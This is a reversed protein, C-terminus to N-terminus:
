IWRFLINWSNKKGNFFGVLTKSYHVCVINWFFNRFNWFGDHHKKWSVFWELFGFAMPTVHKRECWRKKWRFFDVWFDFVWSKPTEKFPSVGLRWGLIIMKTPFGWPNTPSVWWKLFGGSPRGQSPGLCHSISAAKSDRSPHPVKARGHFVDRQFPHNSHTTPIPTPTPLDVTPYNM